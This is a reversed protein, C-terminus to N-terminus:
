NGLYELPTDASPWDSADSLYRCRGLITRNHDKQQQEQVIHGLEKRCDAMDDFSLGKTNIDDCILLQSGCSVVFAVVLIDSM